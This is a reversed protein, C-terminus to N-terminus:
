RTAGAPAQKGSQLDAPEGAMRWAFMLFSPATLDIAPEITAYFAVNDKYMAGNGNFQAFTDEGNQPCAKAGRPAGSDAKKIPGEVVAGALVPTPPNGSGLLNAVQHHICRPFTIGDGVILSTGWANAGLINDMWQRSYADYLKSRTLYDYESAMVALAAGHTPTDGAGWPAGFGFPDKGALSVAHDLTKKMDALLDAPTVALGSPNGALTMARYLEFHALGGLNAVSLIEGGGKAGHIYASAWDTAQKLYFAPDRHRLGEPLNPNRIALYLETAGLEMDDRWESEGYFDHPSATLLETPPTTDALDFIREASLLCRNAYNPDSTRYVTFCLAFDAALRGALNPSVKSGAPAALLVPRNRIYRYKPQTGGFTDDEQPLRWISHDDEFGSNGSGIGVQYYLTASDNNWMRQLWDLGFRAEKVFSSTSSDGGMQHPFDRVGVLMLAETYSATHVFKLYDGADWWGGSADIVAGTPMLDGKIREFSGFQPPKYVNGRQDNLHAPATRLASPIYDRGDRQDQFFRLANNLPPAYLQKPSEVTIASSARHSGSVSLTYNGATSVTFDIPYVKYKGWTGASNGVAGSLATEGNSKKVTFTSGTQATETILYARVPGSEYGLQNLRIYATGTPAAARSCGSILLTLAVSLVGLMRAPQSTKLRARDKRNNQLERSTPGDDRMPLAEATDPIITFPFEPNGAFSEQESILL